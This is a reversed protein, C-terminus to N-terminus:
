PRSSEWWPLVAPRDRQPDLLRSPVPRWPRRTGRPEPATRTGLIEMLSYHRLPAPDKVAVVPVAGCHLAVDLFRNWADVSLTGTDLKCQVMVPRAAPRLMDLAVLDAVGQSGASRVVYYGTDELDDKVQNEFATGRRYATNAVKPDQREYTKPETCQAGALRPGKHTTSIM